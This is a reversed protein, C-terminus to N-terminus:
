LDPKDSEPTTASQEPSTEIKIKADVEEKAEESEEKIESKVEVDEEELGEEEKVDKEVHEKPPAVWGEQRKFEVLLECHPTQPFM